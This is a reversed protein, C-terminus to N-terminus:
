VRSGPEVGTVIHLKIDGSEGLRFQHGDFTAEPQGEAVIGWGSGHGDKVAHGDIRRIGEVGSQFAAIALVPELVVVRELAATEGLIHPLSREPVANRDVQGLDGGFLRPSEQARGEHNIFIGGSEYVTQSPLLVRARRSTASDLYDIVVVLEVRALAAEVLVREPFGGLPDSEVVVLAKVARGTQEGAVAVLGLSIYWMGRLTSLVPAAVRERTGASAEAPHEMPTTAM